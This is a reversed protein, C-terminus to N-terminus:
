HVVAAIEAERENSPRELDANVDGGAVVPEGFPYVDRLAALVELQREPPLYLSVFCTDGDDKPRM